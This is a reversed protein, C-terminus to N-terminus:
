CGMNTFPYRKKGDIDCLVLHHRNCKLKSDFCGISLNDPLNNFDPKVQVSSSDMKYNSKWNAFDFIGGAYFNYKNTGTTYYDNNDIQMQCGSLSSANIFYVLYNATEGNESMIINNLINLTDNKWQGGIQLCYTTPAKCYISNNILCANVCSTSIGSVSTESICIIENNSVIVPMIDAGFISLNNIYHLLLGSNHIKNGIISDILNYQQFNVSNNYDSNPRSEIINYSFSEIHTYYYSYIPSNKQDYIHNSDMRIGARKSASTMCNAAHGGAYCLYFGYYGGRVNNGVFRVNSLYNAESYSNAYEVVRSNSGSTNPNVLLNCQHFLINENFGSFTVAVENITNINGITVREFVLHSSNSLNLSPSQWAGILVSDVCDAASTFTITNSDSTGPIVGMVSLADYNGSSLKLVVPGKVGCSTLMSMAEELTSFDPNSGGVIYSGSLKTVCARVEVTATDNDRNLDSYGNPAETWAVVKYMGDPVHFTGVTIEPSVDGYIIADTASAAKWQFPQQLVGNVSWNIVVANLPTKIEGDVPAIIAQLSADHDSPLFDNYCGAKTYVVRSVGLMDVKVITDVLIIGRSGITHFDYASVNEFHVREYISNIDKGITRNWVSVDTIGNGIIGNVENYYVNYDMKVWNAALYSVDKMHEYCSASGQSGAVYVLNDYFQFNNNSNNTNTNYVGYHNNGGDVYITNHRLDIYCYSGYWFGYNGTGREVVIENNWFHAPRQNMGSYNIYNGVLVGYNTGSGNCWIRNCKLSDINQYAVMNGFRFGTYSVSNPANHIYNNRATLVNYVPYDGLYGAGYADLLNCSDITMNGYISSSQGAYRMYFNYFGGRVNCRTFNIDKMLMSSGASRYVAHYSSSTAGLLSYINCDYFRINDASGRFVVGNQTTSTDGITLHTFHLHSAGDLTVADATHFQRIIVDEKDGSVSTVTVLNTASGGPFAGNVNLENYVGKELVLTVPGSVGCQYLAALAEKLTAFVGKAGVTYIGNMAGSCHYTKGFIATFSTDQTLTVARPNTTDGDNWQIFYCGNNPVAAVKVQSLYTYSGGGSVKGKVTDGSVVALQYSNPAFSATFSTDGLLTVVRPNTTDGDNWQTFHYGYNPTASIKVQSLYTYSGDGSVKGKLTDISVVSLRYFPEFVPYGKNDSTTDAVWHLLVGASDYTDVYANLASLLDTYYGGGINVSDELIYSDAVKQFRTLNSISHNGFPDQYAIMYISPDMVYSFCNNTRTNSYGNFAIVTAVIDHSSKIKGTFYCNNICGTNGSIIGGFQYGIMSETVLLVGSGVLYYFTSPDRELVDTKVYCNEIKGTDANAYVLGGTYTEGFVAGEFSSNVISSWNYIILGGVLSYGFVKANVFNVNKMVGYNNTMFGGSIEGSNSFYLENIYLNKITHNRGDFVGYFNQIPKWKYGGLDIDQGLIVTDIKQKDAGNLGNLVSSLWAMEETSSISVKGNEIKFSEPQSTIIDTWYYPCQITTNVPSSWPTVISSDCVARVSVSIDGIPLGAIFYPTSDAHIIHVMTDKEYCICKVEYYSPNGQHSWSVKILTSDQYKTFDEVRISDPTYCCPVFFDGFKPFCASDAKWLRLTPDNQTVVWANLADLMDNYTSDGITVPTILSVISDKKLFASTDVIIENINAKEDFSAFPM